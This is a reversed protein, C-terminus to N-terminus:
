PLLTCAKKGNGDAPVAPQKQVNEHKGSSTFLSQCQLCCDQVPWVATTDVPCPTTWLDQCRGTLLTDSSVLHEPLSSLNDEALIDKSTQTVKSSVLYRIQLGLLLQIPSPLPHCGLCQPVPACTWPTCRRLELDQTWCSGSIGARLAVCAWLSHRTLINAPNM